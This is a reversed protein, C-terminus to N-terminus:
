EWKQFEDMTELVMEMGLKEFSDRALPKTLADAVM